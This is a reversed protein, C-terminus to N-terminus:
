LSRWSMRFLKCKIQFFEDFNVNYMWQLLEDNEDSYWILCNSSKRIEQNGVDSWHETETRLNWPSLRRNQCRCRLLRPRQFASRAQVDPVPFICRLIGCWDHHIIMDDFHIHIHSLFVPHGLFVFPSTNTPLVHSKLAGLKSVQAQWYWSYNCLVASDRSCWSKKYMTPTPGSDKQWDRM